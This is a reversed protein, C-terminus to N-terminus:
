VKLGVILGAWVFREDRFRVGRLNTWAFRVGPSAYFGGGLQLRAEVNVLVDFVNETRVRAKEFWKVGLAAEGKLTFGPAAETEKGAQLRFYGYRDEALEEQLGRFLGAYLSVDLFASGTAEIGADLYTWTRAEAWPFAYVGASPTLGWDAGLDFDYGAYAALEAGTGEDILARRNSGNVQWATWGYAWLGTGPVQWLLTGGVLGNSDRQSDEQFSNVGRWNYASEWELEATLGFRAGEGDEAGPASEARAEALAAPPPDSPAAAGPEGGSAPGAAALCAAAALVVLCRGIERVPPTARGANRV